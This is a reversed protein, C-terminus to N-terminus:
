WLYWRTEKCGTFLRPSTLAPNRACDDDCDPTGDRDTDTDPVGCGCEGELTKLKDDDCEDFCDLVGDSDSDIDLVGCGCIGEKSKM